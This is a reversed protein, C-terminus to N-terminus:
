RGFTFNVNITTEVDVPEGLLVYPKYRWQRVADLAAISLDPDPSSVVRLDQIHGDKAIVAHLVVTGQVHRAKAMAPYMPAAQSLAFGAIVGASVRTPSVAPLLGDTALDADMIDRQELKDLKGEAAEVQKESVVVDMAVHRQQFTSTMNRLIVEGGYNSSVRLISSGTDFCYTPFLGMPIPAPGGISRALMICELPAKGMTVKQMQPQSADIQSEKPMPHLMQEVLLPATEPPANTKATRFMKDALRVETAAYSPFTYVRKQRDAGAWYVEIMGQESPKGKADFLQVSLKLYFPKVDEANLSTEKEAAHLRDKLVQLDDARARCMTSFLTATALVGRAIYRRSLM